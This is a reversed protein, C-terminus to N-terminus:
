VEVLTLKDLEMEHSSDPDVQGEDALSRLAGQLSEHAKRYRVLGECVCMNINSLRAKEAIGESTPPYSLHNPLRKIIPFPRGADQHEM